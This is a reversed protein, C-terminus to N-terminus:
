YVLNREYLAYGNIFKFLRYTDLFEASALAEQRTLYSGELKWKKTGITLDDPAVKSNSLLVKAEQPTMM